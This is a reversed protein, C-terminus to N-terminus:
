AADGLLRQANALVDNVSITGMCPSIGLPCTGEPMEVGPRNWCGQCDRGNTIVTFQTSTRVLMAPITPGFLALVPTGVSLALHMLGSDNSILLRAHRLIRAAESISTTNTLDLTNAIREDDRGLQVVVHDVQALADCLQRWNEQPWRKTEWTAGSCVAVFRKSDLGAAALQPATWEEYYLRPNMPPTPIGAIRAYHDLRFVDRPAGRLQIYRDCDSL